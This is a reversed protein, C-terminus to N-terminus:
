MVEDYYCYRNKGQRKAQYMAHDAHHILDPVTSADEPYLGVGISTTVSVQHEGLQYPTSITDSIKQAILSISHREDVEPLVITFEDGGFRAVTDSARLGQKLRQAVEQLLQDGAAHGLTDNIPKFGDLDLFMVAVRSRNRAAQTLAYALRENFLIRNPLGTLQDYHALKHLRNENEKELTIDSFVAVYHSLEGQEDRVAAISLWELYEEGAKNRNWIEGQWQGHTLLQDWMHRYFNEEQRGSRLVKPTQGIVEDARYGTVQTFAKNVSIITADPATIIVGEDANEFVKGMLRSMLERNRNLEHRLAILYQRLTDSHEILADYDAPRIDEQRAAKLLLERAALHMREHVPGIRQFSELSEIVSNDVGQHYWRGFHCLHHPMEAIDNSDAPLRCILTRNIQNLWRAHNDAARELELTYQEIESLSLQQFIDPSM